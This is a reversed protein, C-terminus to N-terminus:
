EGPSRGRLWVLDGRGVGLGAAASAAYRVISVWRWADTLVGYEGEPVDSYTAIRRAPTSVDPSTVQLDRDADLEAQELHAPRVNLRVNGFRDIDLVEGKVLHPEVEPEVLRRTVLSAPDVAPGLGDLPQGTALWAAAPAFVDRADLVRTDSSLIVEPSTIAVANTIGGLAPWALSLLGNDPGVLACGDATEIAIARRGTGSGPDVVALVVADPPLFALGDALLIAGTLVDQPPVGHSLDIVTAGPAAREIVLRCAGVSEDRTGLDSLFVVPRM